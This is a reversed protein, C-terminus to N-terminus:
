LSKKLIKKTWIESVLIQFILFSNFHKPFKLFNDYYNQVEGKNFFENNNFSSSNITDLMLNKLPGKLWESQPDAITRKNLYLVKKNVYKRYPYKMIIRQQGLLNKYESPIQLSCEVVEHDLFPVRTEMSNNMSARDAYKLSRPLKLYYLDAYQANRLYSKFPKNFKLEFDKNLFEPNFIKQNKYTSGDITTGGPNRFYSFSGKIFQSSNITKNKITNIYKYFRTKNKKSRKNKQLDLYWPIMHYSYGAGLEDGGAGDFIVKCDKNFTDYLHHTSLVRLSSFPEYEREIVKILYDSINKDKLITSYNKLNTSETITKAFELESYDKNEFDFTYSNYNKKNYNSMAALVASDVGGSLHIGAKVDFQNHEIFSKQLNSKFKEMYDKFTKKDANEDIHKEIFYYKTEKIGSKSYELFHSPKVQYINKFWTESSSNILGQQFFKYAESPNIEKNYDKLQALSNIESCFYIKNNLKNLHYYLPKIGFRDRILFIKNINEDIICISFMGKIKEIFEIGFKEYLHLLIEGDGASNFGIDSFYKKRLKKYNYIEGNYIIQIKKNKSVFPQNSKSSMDIIKLRVFGFIGLNNQFIIEQDPGRHQINKVIETITKKDESNEFPAIGAIGCM